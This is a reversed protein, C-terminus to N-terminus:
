RSISAKISSQIEKLTELELTRYRKVMSSINERGETQNYGDEINRIAVAIAVRLYTDVDGSIGSTHLYKQIIAKAPANSESSYPTFLYITALNSISM